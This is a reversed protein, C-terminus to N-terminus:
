AYCLNVENYATRFSLRALYSHPLYRRWGLEFGHGRASIGAVDSAASCKLMVWDVGRM